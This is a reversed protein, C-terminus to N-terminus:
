PLETEISFTQVFETKDKENLYRWMWACWVSMAGMAYPYSPSGWKQVAVRLAEETFADKSYM